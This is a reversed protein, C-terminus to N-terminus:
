HIPIVVVGDITGTHTVIDMDHIQRFTVTCRKIIQHVFRAHVGEIEAGAMTVAHQFHDMSKFFRAALRDWIFNSGASLAVDIFKIRVCFFGALHKMPLGM